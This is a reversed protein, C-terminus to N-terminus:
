RYGPDDQEVSAGGSGPSSTGSAPPSPSTSPTTPTPSPSLYGPQGPPPPPTSPSPQGFGPATPTSSPQEPTSPSPQGFGPATPTSSPQVFTPTTPTSSPQARPRRSRRVTAPAPSSPPSKPLPKVFGLLAASSSFYKTWQQLIPQRQWDSRSVKAVLLPVEQGNREGLVSVSMEKISPSEAFGQRILNTAMLEAKQMLGAFNQISHTNLTFIIRKTQTDQHSQSNPAIDISQTPDAAVPSAFIALSSAISVIGLISRYGM